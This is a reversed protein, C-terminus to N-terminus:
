GRIPLSHVYKVYNGFYYSYMEEGEAKDPMGTMGEPYIPEGGEDIIEGTEEDYVPETKPADMYAQLREDWGFVYAQMWYRDDWSKSSDVMLGTLYANIANDKSDFGNFDGAKITKQSGDYVQSPDVPSDDGTTVTVVSSTVSGKGNYVLCRFYHTKGVDDDFRYTEKAYGYGFVSYNVADLSHQWEYTVPLAEEGVTVSLDAIGDLPSTVSL